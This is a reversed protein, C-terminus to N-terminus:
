PAYAHLEPRMKLKLGVVEYFDLDTIEAIERLPLETDRILKRAFARRDTRRRSRRTAPGIRHPRAQPKETEEGNDLGRERAQRLAQERRYKDARIAADSLHVFRAFNRAARAATEPDPEQRDTSTQRDGPDAAAEDLTMGHREALRHAADLANQREGEFSSNAALKLLNQFRERESESFGGLARECTQIRPRDRESRM